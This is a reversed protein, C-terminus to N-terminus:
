RRASAVVVKEQSFERLGAQGRERGYGSDRMGGFPVRSSSQYYGNCWITGWNLSPGHRALWTADDTYVALALGSRMHGLKALLDVDDKFPTLVAVPGFIEQEYLPNACDATVAIQPRMFYGQDPITVDSPLLVAGAAVALDLLRTLRALEDASIMPGLDAEPEHASDVRMSLVRGALEQALEVLLSEHVLIRTGACCIQGGLTFAGWFIHSVASALDADGRVVQLGGGGTEFFTPRLTHEAINRLIGQATAMRGTFACKGLLPHSLLRAAIEGQRDWLVNVVGPPFDADMVAEAFIAACLPAQHSAKLVVTNGMLLPAGIKCLAALPSNWSMIWVVVGYPCMEITADGLEEQTVTTVAPFDLAATENLLEVGHSVEDMARQRLIGTEAQIAGVLRERRRELGHALRVLTAKRASPARARWDLWARHAAEMARDALQLRPLLIHLLPRGTSPDFDVLPADLQLDQDAAWAGGVLPRPCMGTYDNM